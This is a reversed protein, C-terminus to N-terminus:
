RTTQGSVIKPAIYETGKKLVTGVPGLGSTGIKQMSKSMIRQASPSSLIRNIIPLGIGGPGLTAIGTGGLVADTWNFLAQKGAKVTLDDAYDLAKIAVSIAKNNARFSEFGGAKLADDIKDNM